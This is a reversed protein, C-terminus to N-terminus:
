MQCFPLSSVLQVALQSLDLWREGIEALQQLKAFLYFTLDLGLSERRILGLSNQFGAFRLHQKSPLLQGRAGCNFLALGVLNAPFILAPAPVLFLELLTFFHKAVARPKLASRHPRSSQPIYPCTTSARGQPIPSRPM